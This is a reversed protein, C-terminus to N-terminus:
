NAHKDANPSAAADSSPPAPVAVAAPVPVPAPVPIVMSHPPIPSALPVLDSAASTEDMAPVPPIPSIEVLAPEVVEAPQTPDKYEPASQIQSRDLNLVVPVAQDAPQFKLLDWDVAIKRSGVGLFGGFDVIAARPQGQDDVLVDIISGYADKGDPGHVKKGLISFAQNPAMPEVNKAAEAQDNDKQAEPAKPSSEATAPPATDPKDADPKSPSQEDPAAPPVVPPVDQQEVVPPPQGKDPPVPTDPTATSQPPPDALAGGVAVAAALAASMLLARM